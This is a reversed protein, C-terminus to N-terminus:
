QKVLSGLTKRIELAILAHDVDYRRLQNRSSLYQWAFYPGKHSFPRSKIERWPPYVCLAFLTIQGIFPILYWAANCFQEWRLQWSKQAYTEIVALFDEAMETTEIFEQIQDDKLNLYERCFGLCAAAALSVHLEIKEKRKLAPLTREQEKQQALNQAQMATIRALMVEYHNPMVLSATPKEDPMNSNGEAYTTDLYM